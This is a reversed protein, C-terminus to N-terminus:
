EISILYTKYGLLLNSICSIIWGAIHHPYSNRYISWVFCMVGICLVIFAHWAEKDWIAFLHISLNIHVVIIDIKRVLSGHNPNRWHLQSTTFLVIESVAIHVQKLSVAVLSTFLLLPSLSIIIKNYYANHNTNNKM